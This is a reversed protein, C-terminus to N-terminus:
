RQVDNRSPLAWYSPGPCRFSSTHGGDGGSARWNPRDLVTRTATTMLGSPFTLVASATPPGGSNMAGASSAAFCHSNSAFLLSVVCTTSNWNTLGLLYVPEIERQRKLRSEVSSASFAIVM